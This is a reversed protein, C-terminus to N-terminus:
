ISMMYLGVVILVIGAIRKLIANYRVLISLRKSSFASSYAIILMPVGLGLSYIFLLLAGYPVSGKVAVMALIAGLIPGVCPIWVVGLSLGLTFGGFINGSPASYNFRIPIRSRLELVKQELKEFLMYLGLFVIFCGAIIKMYYVYGIFTMGLASAAVGMITFSLSVGLVISLPRFRGKGTSYAMIAPILPLVCPSSISVVGASFAVLPSLDIM